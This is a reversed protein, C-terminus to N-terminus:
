IDFHVYRNSMFETFVCIGNIKIKYDKWVYSLTKSSGLCLTQFILFESVNPYDLIIYPVKLLYKLGRGLSTLAIPASCVVIVSLVGFNGLSLCKKNKDSEHKHIIVWKPRPDKKQFDHFCHSWLNVQFTFWFHKLFQNLVKLLFRGFYLIFYTNHVQCDRRLIQVFGFM